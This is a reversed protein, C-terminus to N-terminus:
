ALRRAVGRPSGGRGIASPVQWERSTLRSRLEEPSAIARRRPDGSRFEELMRGVLTRPIAPRGAIVDRLAHPLRRPDIDKLLYGAAGSRLARFLAESEASVTLMVVKTDPLRSVIEWCADLGGGPMNLDLLCLDPRHRLAAAIAGAADSAEAAVRFGGDAELTARLDARTPAHDDALVLRVVQETASVRDGRRDNRGGAALERHGNWGAPDCTRSDLRPWLIGPGHGPSRPRVRGGRRERRAARAGREARPCHTGLRRRQAPGREDRGRLRGAGSDRAPSGRRVRRRGPRARPRHGLPRM